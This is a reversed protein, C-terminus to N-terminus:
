VPTAPVPVHAVKLRHACCEASMCVHPMDFPFDDPITVSCFSKIEFGFAVGFELSPTALHM